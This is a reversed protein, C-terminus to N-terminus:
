NTFHQLVGSLVNLFLKFFMSGYVKCQYRKTSLSVSANTQKFHIKYVSIIDLGSYRSSLQVKQVFCCWKEFICM